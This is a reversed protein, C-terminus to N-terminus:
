LFQPLSGHEKGPSRVEQQFNHLWKDVRGVVEVRKEDREEGRLRRREVGKFEHQSV